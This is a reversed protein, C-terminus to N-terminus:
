DAEERSKLLERLTIIEIALNRQMEMGLVMADEGNEPIMSTTGVSEMAAELASGLITMIEEDLEDEPRAEIFRAQARYADAETVNLERM